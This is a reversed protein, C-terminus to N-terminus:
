AQPAIQGPPRGEFLSITERNFLIVLAYIGLATGIPFSLLWIIWLVGVVIGLTRGWAKLGLVGVGGIMGLAGFVIAAGGFLGAVGLFWRVLRSQIHVKQGEPTTVTVKGGEVEVEGGPSRTVVAKGNPGYEEASAVFTTAAASWLLIGIGLLVTLGAFVIFLVGVATIHGRM